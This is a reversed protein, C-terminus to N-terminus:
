NGLDMNVLAGENTGRRLLMGTTSSSRDLSLFQQPLFLSVLLANEVSLSENNKLSSLLQTWFDAKVKM